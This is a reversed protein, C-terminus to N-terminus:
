KQRATEPEARNRRRLKSINAVVVCLFFVTIDEFSFAYFLLVLIVNVIMVCMYSYINESFPCM